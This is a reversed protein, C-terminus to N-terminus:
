AAVTCTGTLELELSRPAPRQPSSACRKDATRRIQELFSLGSTTTSEPTEGKAADQPRPTLSRSSSLTDRVLFRHHAVLLLQHSGVGNALTCAPTLSQLVMHSAM